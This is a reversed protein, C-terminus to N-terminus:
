SWIPTPWPDIGCNPLVAQRGPGCNPGECFFPAGRAASWPRAPLLVGTTTPMQVSALPPDCAAGPLIIKRAPDNFQLSQCSAAVLRNGIRPIGGVGPITFMARDDHDNTVSKQRRSSHIPRSLLTKARRGRVVGDADIHALAVAAPERAEAASPALWSGAPAPFAWTAPPWPGLPPTSRAGSLCLLLSRM